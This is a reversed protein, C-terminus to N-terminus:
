GRGVLASQPAFVHTNISTAPYFLLGVDLYRNSSGFHRFGISIATEIKM